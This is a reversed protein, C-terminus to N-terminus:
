PELAAAFQAASRFRDDPDKAMAQMIVIGVHVPLHPKILLPDPPPQKLHGFLIQAPTGSFPKHGTLMEYLVVGLAYIDARQDVDHSTQIQEPSMYDITGIADTGTLGKDSHKFKAIGFDTIVPTYTENDPNLKLMINAPKIDRHVYDQDHAMQLGACVGQVIEIATEIEFVGHQELHSQIDVGEVFEMVMFQTDDLQGVEVVTAINPHELHIESERLFREKAQLDDATDLRLTKLAFFQGGRMAKYVEGMGGRGILDLIKYNGVMTESLVGRNHVQVQAAELQNLDFRLHYVNRDIFHQIYQRVPNFTLGVALASIGIALGAAELNLVQTLIVQSVIFVGTFVLILVIIVGVFVVSRNIVVDIDWLRYQLIAFAVGVPLAMSFITELPFSIAFYLRAINGSDARFMFRYSAVIILSTVLALLGLLMWKAQQRQPATYTNRYRYYQTVLIGLLSIVYFSVTLNSALNFYSGFLNILYMMPFILSWRPVIRADPFLYAAAYTVVGGAWIFFRLRPDEFVISDLHSAVGTSLGLLLLAGAVLMAMWDDSRNWFILFAMTSFGIAYILEIIFTFAMAAELSFGSQMLSRTVLNNATTMPLVTEYVSGDARRLQLQLADNVRLGRQTPFNMMASSDTEGLRNLTDEVMTPEDNISLLIDGDVIGLNQLNESPQQVVLDGDVNSLTAQDILPRGRQLVDFFDVFGIVYIALTLIALAIWVYRLVRVYLPHEMRTYVRTEQPSVEPPM